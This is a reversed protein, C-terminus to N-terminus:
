KSCADHVKDLMASLGSLSYTDRTHTGRQSVGSITITSGKRMAERLRDEDGADKVWATGSTGDNRTFFEVKVSGVQAIVPEGDKYSYGPVVELEGQVKRDPWDSILLYIPDRSVKRPEITKPKSLTYCVKGDATTAQHASWNKSVGLLTPKADAAAAPALSAVVCGLGIIATLRWSGQM